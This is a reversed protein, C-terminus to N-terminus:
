PGDYVETPWQLGENIITSWELNTFRRLGDHVVWLSVSAMEFCKVYFMRQMKACRGVIQGLCRMSVFLLEPEIAYLCSVILQLLFISM